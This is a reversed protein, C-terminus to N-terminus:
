ALEKPLFYRIAYTYDQSGGSLWGGRIHSIEEARKAIRQMEQPLYRLPVVKPNRSAAIKRGTKKCFMDEPSCYSAQVDVQLPHDTDGVVRVTAGGRDGLRLHFFREVKM